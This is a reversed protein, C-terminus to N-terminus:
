GDDSLDDLITELDRSGHVFDLIQIETPTDRYIIFHAGERIFNLDTIDASEPFLATCPRGKPLDGKALANLRNILDREYAAAQKHGFNTITWQAIESLRKHAQPTLRLPKM